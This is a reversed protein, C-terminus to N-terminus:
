MDKDSHKGINQHIHRAGLKRNWSINRDLLRMSAENNEPKFWHRNFHMADM